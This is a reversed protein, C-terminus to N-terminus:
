LQKLEESLDVLHEATHKMGQVIATQEEVAAAVANSNQNVESVSNTISQNTEVVRDINERINKIRQAINETAESTSKALSKVENAVVAFGRGAEGARASEITANLALLNTQEALEQITGVIGGIEQSSQSLQRIWSGADSVQRDTDEALEANRCVRGAMEDMSAVMEGVNNAVTSGVTALNGVKSRIKSQETQISWCAMPGIYKGDHDYIASVELRIVESGLSFETKIPLNSPDSLIQEQVEPKSHFIKLPSGVISEVPVPLLQAIKQFSAMSAPNAYNIVLDLDAYMVNIPLSEIINQLRTAENLAHVQETVDTAFKVIKCLKGDRNFIPNYSAQIYVPSGDKAYRTFRGAHHRGSLLVQWFDQYDPSQAFKPDVFIRHNRGVIEPLTYGLTKLFLDNATIVKGDLTFEIIASSRQLANVIGESELRYEELQDTASDPNTEKPFWNRFSTLILGIM